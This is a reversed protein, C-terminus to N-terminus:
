WSGARGMLTRQFQVLDAVCVEQTALLAVAYTAMGALAALVWGYSQVAVIAVGMAATPVAVRALPALTALGHGYRSSLIGAVVALTAEGALLAVAAGTLTWQPVLLLNLGLTVVAGASVAALDLPTRGAAILTQRFHGGVVSIPLTWVLLRLVGAAPAYAPGFVLQVIPSALLTTGVAFPLTLVATLRISRTALDDVSAPGHMMARSVLALYGYFYLASFGAAAQALRQAAGFQGVVAPVASLAIVTASSWATVARMMQSGALPASKRLIRAASPPPTGVPVPASARLFAQWLFSAAALEGAAQCLPVMWIREPRDVLTIALGAYVITRTLTAVAVRSSRDIGYFVWELSIATTFLSAQTLLVVQSAGPPAPALAIFGAVGLLGACALCLRMTVAERTGLWTLGAEVLALTFGTVAAAFTLVGFAAAGLRRAFYVALLAGAIVRLGEAASVRSSGAALRHLRPPTSDV